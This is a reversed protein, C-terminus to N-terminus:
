SFVISVDQDNNTGNKNAQWTIDDIVVRNRDGEQLNIVQAKPISITIASGIAISLADEAGSLWKGFRDQTANLVSEPNATIIPVRNVILGSSFGSVNTSCERMIVENGADFVLQEFCFAVSDYTTTMSAARMPTDTPYTPAIIAVSTPAQWIGTFTWDIYANRGSPFTITFTGVAGAISKFQGNQFSGITITKVNSGPAQSRPTFTGTSNVYGCAPLLVTAWTPVDTGNYGLDTRFTAVGTRPGPVSALGGFTGQAERAEVPINAQIMLNYANFVGEAATLAEATGPTAEVKAALTRIKKLLSM